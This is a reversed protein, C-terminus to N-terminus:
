QKVLATDGVKVEMELLRREITLSKKENLDQSRTMRELKRM